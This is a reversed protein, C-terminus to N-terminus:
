TAAFDDGSAGLCFPPLRNLPAAADGYHAVSLMRSFLLSAALPLISIVDASM